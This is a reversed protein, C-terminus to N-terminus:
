TKNSPPLIVLPTVISPDTVALAILVGAVIPPDGDVSVFAEDDILDSPNAVNLDADIAPNSTVVSLICPPNIGADDEIDLVLTLILKIIGLEVVSPPVLVVTLEITVLEVISEIKLSAYIFASLGFPSSNETLPIEPSIPCIEVILM